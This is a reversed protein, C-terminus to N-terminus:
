VADGVVDVEHALVVEDGLDYADTFHGSSEGCCGSKGEAPNMCYPCVTLEDLIESEKILRRFSLPIGNLTPGGGFSYPTHKRLDLNDYTSRKLSM